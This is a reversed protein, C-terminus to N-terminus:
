SVSMQEVSFSPFICCHQSMCLHTLCECCHFIYCQHYYILISASSWWGRGEAGRRRTQPLFRSYSLINALFQMFIFFHLFNSRPRRQREEKSGSSTVPVPFLFVALFKVVIQKEYSDFGYADDLNRYKNVRIIGIILHCFLCSNM